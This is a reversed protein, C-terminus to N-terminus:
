ERSYARRFGGAAIAAFRGLEVGALRNGAARGDRLAGRDGDLVERGAHEGGARSLRLLKPCHDLVSTPMGSFLKIDSWKALENAALAECAARKQEPATIRLAPTITHWLEEAACTL